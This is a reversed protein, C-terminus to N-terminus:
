PAEVMKKIGYSLPTFCFAPFLTKLKQNNFTHDVKHQTRERSSVRPSLSHDAQLIEIIEQYSYSNGSAINLVGEYDTFLLKEVISVVDDVFIFERKEQGDGWLVLPEQRLAAHLFGSPGYCPMDGPGYIQPPRIIVLGRPMVKQLMRESAYKAIGYYSTPQVPTNETIANNNDNNNNNNNNNDNNNSNEGYVEASSFYILRPVPCEQLVKGLGAVMMVNRQYNEITDGWQKKVGALMIVATRSDFYPRLAGADRQLDFAPSSKGVLELKPYHERLAHEIRSGIFGTHGIIVTRMIM